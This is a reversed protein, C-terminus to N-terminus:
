AGAGTDQAQHLAIQTWIATEDYLTWERRLGHPGFEAHTIGMVYVQAGTPTGFAGVNSHRGWLSWRVAARPPFMADERGIVHHIQFDADPFASRFPLWFRDADFWGHGTIGGPYELQAARDYSSQIVSLDANMIRTLIDALRQGWENTNGHGSYPGSVDTDPTLPAGALSAAVREEAWTRPDKGMQKLIASNDRILWEDTIQNNIAFCDAIGRYVLPAGTAAGFLGDGAHTAKSLIRHSSLMGQEPSGSWIVDEGLLQRDPFEALGALTSQRAAFEGIFVGGPMRVIVDSGYYDTLRPGIGRDEWIEKTIGLIYDPFDSWKDDFGQM